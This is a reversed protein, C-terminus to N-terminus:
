VAVLEVGEAEALEFMDQEIKDTIVVARVKASPKYDRVFLLKYGKVQGLASTGARPKLEIIDIEGEKHGVVDIKRLFLKVDDGGSEQNVITSFPPPTGVPVDYRVSDYAQPYKEIFREWILIDAPKLHPYKSRKEFRFMQGQNSM